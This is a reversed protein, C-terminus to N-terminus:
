TGPLYLSRSSWAFTSLFLMMTILSDAEPSSTNRHRSAKKGIPIRELVGHVTDSMTQSPYGCTPYSVELYGTHTVM